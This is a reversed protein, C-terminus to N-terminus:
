VGGLSYLVTGDVIRGETGCKIELKFNKDFYLGNPILISGGTSYENEVLEGFDMNLGNLTCSSGNRLVGAIAGSSTNAVYTIIGGCSSSVTGLHVMYVKDDITIRGDVVANNSRDKSLLSYLFGRGTISLVEVYSLGLTIGDVIKVKNQKYGIFNDILKDIKNLQTMNADTYYSAFERVGM